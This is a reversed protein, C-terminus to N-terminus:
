ILECLANMDVAESGSGLDTFQVTVFEAGELDVVVSAIEDVANSNVKVTADGSNFAITDVFNMTNTVLGSAVGTKTSVTLTVQCIYSPIWTETGKTRAWGYIRAKCAENNAGADTFFMFRANNMNSCAITGAAPTLSPETLRVAPATTDATPATTWLRAARRPTTGLYTTGSM